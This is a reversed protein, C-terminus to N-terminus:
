RTRRVKIQKLPRPNHHNIPTRFVFNTPQTSPRFGVYRVWLNVGVGVCGEDVEEFFEDKDEEPIEAPSDVGEEEMKDEFYEQYDEEAMFFKAMEVLDEAMRVNAIRAKRNQRPGKRDWVLDEDKKMGFQGDDDIEEIPIMTGDSM